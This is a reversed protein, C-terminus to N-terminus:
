KPILVGDAVFTLETKPEIISAIEEKSKGADEAYHQLEKVSTTKVKPTGEIIVTKGAIDKPVFFGYDRFSVRMSSGDAMKLKMWCGSMQCVSEVEGSVKISEPLNQINQKLIDVNQSGKPKIKVGLSEFKQAEVTNYLFFISLIVALKKM